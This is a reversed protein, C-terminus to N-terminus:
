NDAAIELENYMKEKEFLNLMFYGKRTPKSWICRCYDIVTGRIYGNLIMRRACLNIECENFKRLNVRIGAADQLLLIFLESQPKPEPELDDFYPNSATNAFEPMLGPQIDFFDKM